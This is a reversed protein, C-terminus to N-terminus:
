QRRLQPKAIRVWHERLWLAIQPDIRAVMRFLPSGSTTPPGCINAAIALASRANEWDSHSALGAAVAWLKAAIDGRYPGADPYALTRKMVAFHSQLCRLQNAASMSGGRRYNIISLESEAGFSLGAFALRIHCAVDENFLMEPPDQYGGANLFAARRYLGCIANIQERIAYSRPNSVLEEKNFNRISLLVNTEEERYEYNFLVVDPCEKGIWKRALSVFNPMLEDDADHFHLWDTEVHRALADKGASCGQNIEGRLVNAGMQEAIAATRDTSCDDYVWIADFQETQAHASRLLRPLFNEANYAPILLAISQYSMINRGSIARYVFSM